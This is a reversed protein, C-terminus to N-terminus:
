FQDELEKLGAPGGNESAFEVVLWGILSSIPVNSRLTASRADVNLVATYGADRPIQTAVRRLVEDLPRDDDNPLEDADEPPAGEVERSRLEALIATIRDALLAVQVKELVVSAIRRGSIAQLFFTRQGPEGIAGAAFRDPADFVLIRRSM